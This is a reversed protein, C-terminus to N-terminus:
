IDFRRFLFGRFAAVCNYLLLYALQPRKREWTELPFLARIKGALASSDCADALSASVCQM